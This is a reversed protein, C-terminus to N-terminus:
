HPLKMQLLKLKEKKLDGGRCSIRVYKLLKPIGRERGFGEIKLNNKLIKINKKYNKIM